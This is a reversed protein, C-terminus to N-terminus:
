ALRGGIFGKRIKRQELGEPLATAGDAADHLVIGQTIQIAKEILLHIVHANSALQPVGAAEAVPV